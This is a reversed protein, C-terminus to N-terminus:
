KEGWNNIIKTDAEIPVKNLKVTTTMINNIKSVIQLDAIDSSSLRLSETELLVEDHVCALLRFEPAEKDMRVLILKMVDAASGQILYNVAKREAEFREWQSKSSLGPIKIIRGGITQIYGMKRANEIHARRWAYLQPNGRQLSSGVNRFYKLDYPIPDDAYTESIVKLKEPSCGYFDALWSTKGVFREMKTLEQPKKGFIIGGMVAHTDLGQAYAELLFKNQTYHAVIRPEIQKLDSDIMIMGPSPIFAKRIKKGEKTRDPINQLNPGSSTLRGTKTGGDGDSAGAQNFSGHIRGDRDSKQLLPLLYTSKLKSLERHALLNKADENGEWALKKLVLKDAKPKGKKTKETLTVGSSKFLEAVQKTSRANTGYFQKELEYLKTQYEDSLEMLQKRDLMIGYYEVKTLINILPQEVEDYWPTEITNARILDCNIVDDANYPKWLDISVKEFPVIRNKKLGLDIKTKELLEEIHTVKKHLKNEVLYKLGNSRFPDELYSLVATCDLPGNVEYGAAKLFLVDFKINHGRKVVDPDALLARFYSDDTRSDGPVIQIVPSKQNHRYGILLIRDRQWDLGTTELDLTLM